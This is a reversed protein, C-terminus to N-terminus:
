PVPVEATAANALRVQVMRCNLGDVVFADGDLAAVREPSWFPIPPKPVASGPGMADRNGYSGFRTIVNGASDLVAVCHGPADPVWLRGWDDADFDAMACQCGTQLPM